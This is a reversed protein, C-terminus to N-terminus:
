NELEEIKLTVNYDKLEITRTSIPYPSIDILEFSHIGFTDILNDFTSLILTGNQPSEIEIKVNM